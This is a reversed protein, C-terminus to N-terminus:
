SGPVGAEGPQRWYTIAAPSLEIEVAARYLGQEQEAAAILRVHATKGGPLDQALVSFCPLLCGLVPILWCLPHGFRGFRVLM